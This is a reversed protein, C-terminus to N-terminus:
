ILLNSVTGVARCCRTACRTVFRGFNTSTQRQFKVGVGAYSVSCFAIRPLSSTSFDGAVTRMPSFAHFTPSVSTPRKVRESLESPVLGLLEEDTPVRRRVPRRARQCM